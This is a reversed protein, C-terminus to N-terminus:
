FEVLVMGIFKDNKSRNQSIEYFEVRYIKGDKDTSFRKMFDKKNIIIEAENKLNKDYGIINVRVGSQSKIMFNKGVKIKTGFKVSIENSDVVMDVKDIFDSYEFFQPKITTLHRNGYFIKYGNGSKVFGILSNDCKFSFPTTKDFPVYNIFKRPNQLSLLFKGGFLEVLIEKQLIKKINKPSLEFNRSFKIDMIDMYKEIAVLHYFVRQEVNLFKSSENAYASKNNRVAFYTLSKEMEKDQLKTNTNKVHYRHKELMIKENISNAVMTANEHLNGYKEGLLEFQDIICSNGWRKPNEFLNLYSHRYFGSGDHLNLVLAVNPELILNKIREVNPFDPDKEDIHLFKRNMDGDLGRSNALISSFNLNPVVWLSGKIIEYENAIINAAFFGGPEDGQIGGILLMTNNDDFGKKILTFDRSQANLNITFIFFIAILIRGMHAGNKFFHSIKDFKIKSFLM